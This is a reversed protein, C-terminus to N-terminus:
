AIRRALARQVAAADSFPRSERGVIQTQEHGKGAILVADAAAASEVAAAIAAERDHLVRVPHTLGALIDAVIAAPSETRPNDDTVIIEDALRGAVEGMQSRKGRDRDGGCGFVCWLRGHTHTRLTQLAKDLADPTHAYDVAVLPACDVGGFHQMRGPPPTLEALLAGADDLPLGLGLLTGLVTLANALNFEGLLRTRLSASGFSSEVRFRAGDIGLRVDTARLWAGGGAECWAGSPSVAIAQPHKARLERGFADDVNVVRLALGPLDFLSAKAAAYAAMSGHYDLHDRTLNTIAAGAFRM